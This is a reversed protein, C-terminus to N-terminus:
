TREYDNIECIVNINCKNGRINLKYLNSTSSVTFFESHLWISPRHSMKVTLEQTFEVRVNACPCGFHFGSLTIASDVDEATERGIRLAFKHSVGM